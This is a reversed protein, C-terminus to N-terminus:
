VNLMSAIDSLGLLLFHVHGHHCKMHRLCSQCVDAAVPRPGSGCVQAQKVLTIVHPLEELHKEISVWPNDDRLYGSSRVDKTDNQVDKSSILANRSLANSFKGDSTHRAYTDLTLENVDKYGSNLLEQARIEAVAIYLFLADTM